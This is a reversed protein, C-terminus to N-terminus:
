AGYHSFAAWYRPHAHGRLGPPKRINAQWMARFAAADEPCHAADAQDAFWAAKEVNTTDRLWCQADRLSSSPTQCRHGFAEYFRAMLMASVPGDVAWQSAIVGGFGAQLMGSPLSVVEDPLSDGPRSGECASLVALRRGRGPAGALRVDLLDRLTLVEDAALSLGSDLPAETFAMGHCAFHLVDFDPLLSLIKDRSAGAGSRVVAHGFRGTIAAVEVDAAPVNGLM